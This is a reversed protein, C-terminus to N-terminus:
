SAARRPEIARGLSGLEVYLRDRLRRVKALDPETNCLEDDLADLVESLVDVSARAQEITM